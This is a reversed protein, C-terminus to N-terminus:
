VWREPPLELEGRATFWDSQDNGQIMGRNVYHRWARTEVLSHLRDNIDPSAPMALLHLAEARARPLWGNGLCEEVFRSSTSLCRYVAAQWYNPGYLQAKNTAEGRLMDFIQGIRMDLMPLGNRVEAILSTAREVYRQFLGLDAFHSRIISLQTATVQPHGRIAFVIAFDGNAQFRLESYLVSHQIFTDYYYNIFHRYGKATWGEDKTQNCFGCCPVLNLSFMSFEPYGNV